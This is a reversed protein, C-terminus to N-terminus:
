TEGAKLVKKRIKDFNQKDKSVFLYNKEKIKYLNDCMYWGAAIDFERVDGEYLVFDVNNAYALSLALAGPSRYKLGMKKLRKDFIKSDYSKEFIGVSSFKNKKVKKLSKKKLKGQKLKKGKKIFIDENELNCVIACKVIGNKKFAVSTGFYPLSSIFNSSGDIPDIVILTDCKKGYYGIEESLIQGYKKLHKIFIKEAEIDVFRSMDGGKGISIAKCLKEHPTKKIFKLIKLNAKKVSKVFDKM